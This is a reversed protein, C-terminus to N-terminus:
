KARDIAILARIIRASERGSTVPEGHWQTVHWPISSAIPRADVPRWSFPGDARRAIQRAESGTIQIM